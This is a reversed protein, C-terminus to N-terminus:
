SVEELNIDFHNLLMDLKGNMSGLEKAIKNHNRNHQVIYAMVGAGMVGILGLTAGDM